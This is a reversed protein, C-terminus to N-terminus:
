RPAQGGGAPPGDAHGHAQCDTRRLDAGGAALSTLDLRTDDSTKDILGKARMMQGRHREPEFRRVGAPPVHRFWTPQRCGRQAGHTGRQRHRGADDCQDAGLALRRAADPLWWKWWASTPWRAPRARGSSRSPTWSGRDAKLEAAGPPFANADLIFAILDVYVADPLTSPDDRPM